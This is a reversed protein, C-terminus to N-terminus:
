HQGDGRSHADGRKAGGMAVRESLSKRDPFDPRVPPPVNAMIEKMNSTYPELDANQEDNPDYLGSSRPGWLIEHM